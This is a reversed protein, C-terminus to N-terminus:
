ETKEVSSLDRSAAALDFESQHSKLIVPKLSVKENSVVINNIEIRDYGIFDVILDYSGEVLQLEFDGSMSTETSIDLGKVKVHAFALPENNFDGDLVNGNVVVGQSYAGIGTFLAIILLLNKM